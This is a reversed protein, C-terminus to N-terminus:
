KELLEDLNGLAMTFGEKFGMEMIQQIDEYKDYQISVSVTTKGDAETFTNTWTSRAFDPSLNGESDCFADIASFSKQANITLYDAKSWHEEGEPGVMAYLWTGGERFDMSKTRAKWPRPAWWQDLLESQTWAAWVKGVPAAFEREVNVRNNEKDVSFNMVLNSNM